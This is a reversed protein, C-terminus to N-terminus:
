EEKSGPRDSSRAPGDPLAPDKLDEPADFDRVTGEDAVPALLIPRLEDRRVLDELFALMPGDLYHESEQLFDLVQVPVVVPHGPRGAFSPRVVAAPDRRSAALLRVLTEPAVLPMDVPHAWLHSVAAGWHRRALLITMATDGGRPGAVVHARTGALDTRYAALDDDAAVVVVPMGARAYLGCLRGVFSVEWGPPRVLGKVRGMRRGAGRAMIVAVDQRDPETM